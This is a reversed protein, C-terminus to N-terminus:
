INLLKNGEPFGYYAIFHGELKKTEAVTEETDGVVLIYTTTEDLHENITCGSLHKRASFSQLSM